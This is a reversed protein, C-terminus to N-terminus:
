ARTALHPHHYSDPDTARVPQAAGALFTGSGGDKNELIPSATEHYLGRPPASPSYDGTNAELLEDLTQQEDGPVFETIPLYAYSSVGLSVFPGTRSALYEGLPPNWLRHINDYWIMWPVHLIKRRLALLVFSTIRSIKGLIRVKNM